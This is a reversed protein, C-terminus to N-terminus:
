PEALVLPYVLNLVSTVAGPESFVMEQSTGKLILATMLRQYEVFENFFRLSDNFHSTLRRFVKSFCAVFIM